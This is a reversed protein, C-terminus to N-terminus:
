RNRLFRDFAWQDISRKKFKQNLTEGKSFQGGGNRDKKSSSKEDEDCNCCECNCWGEDAGKEGCCGCGGSKGTIGTLLLFLVLVILAILLIPTNCDGCDCCDCECGCASCASVKSTAVMGKQKRIKTKDFKALVDLRMLEAQAVLKNYRKILFERVTIGKKRCETSVIVYKFFSHYIYLTAFNFLIHTPLLFLYVTYSLGLFVGAILRVNNDGEWLIFGNLVLIILLPFVQLCGVSVLFWGSTLVRLSEQYICQL